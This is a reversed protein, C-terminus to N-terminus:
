ITNCLIDAVYSVGLKSGEPKSLDVYRNLIQALREFNM